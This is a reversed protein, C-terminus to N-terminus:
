NALQKANESIWKRYGLVSTYVAIKNCDGTGRSTLGVLINKKLKKDFFYAPGGSDGHCAGKGHTQDLTIEEFSPLVSQIKIKNVM